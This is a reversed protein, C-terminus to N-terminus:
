LGLFRAAALVAAISKSDGLRGDLAMALGEQLGVQVVELFEGEDLDSQGLVADSVVYCTMRENCFGPSSWFEMLRQIKGSQYGIEEKLEREIARDPHEDGDIKGATCELILQETPVRYQRVFVWNQERTLVAACVANPHYVLERQARSGDALQVEAVELRLLKGQFRTERHLVKEEM